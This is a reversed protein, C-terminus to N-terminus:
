TQDPQTQDPRNQDPNLKLTQSLNLWGILSHVIPNLNQTLTM